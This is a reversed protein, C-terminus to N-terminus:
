RQTTAGLFGSANWQGARPDFTRTPDFGISRFDPRNRSGYDKESM